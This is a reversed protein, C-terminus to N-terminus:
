QKVFDTQSNKLFLRTSTVNTQNATTWQKFNIEVGEFNASDKNNELGQLDKDEVSHHLVLEIGSCNEYSYIMYSHCQRNCESM